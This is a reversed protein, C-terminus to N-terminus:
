VGFRLSPLYMAIQPFIMVLILAILQILVFPTVSKYIVETTIGEPAIGKMLFLNYGFPPTIFAMQCNIVYLVGFWRIDFGLKLAIPIYVPAVIILMATDDLVMGLFIFSIQMIILTIWKNGGALNLLSEVGKVAGVADFVSSFFFAATLIWMVMTTTHLCDEMSEEIINWNLKKNIAACIIAGIAGIASSEVLTIIGMFLTGLVLLILLLAPIAGLAAFCKDKLTIKQYEELSMVEALEPKKKCVILIYIIYLITLLIGPGIGALWLYAISTRAIVGYFIFVVSPPILFGLSGGSMITGVALKKDYNRKLMEPLAVTTGTVTGAINTGSMAAIIACMIVTGIALSGRIRGSWVYIAQYIREAVGSKSLISGMFIFPPIALLSYFDIFTTGKSFPMFTAGEGWLFLAVIAAVSGIIIFIQRGTLLLLIMGLFMILPLFLTSM